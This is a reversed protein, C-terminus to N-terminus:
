GYVEMEKLEELVEQATKIGLELNNCITANLIYEQSHKEHGLFYEFLVPYCFTEIPAYDCIDISGADWDILATFNQYGM